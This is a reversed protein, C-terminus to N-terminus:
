EADSEAEEKRAVIGIADLLPKGADPTGELSELIKGMEDLKRMYDLKREGFYGDDGKKWGSFDESQPPVEELVVDYISQKIIERHGDGGRMAILVTEDQNLWKAEFLVDGNALRSVPNAHTLWSLWRSARLREKDDSKPSLIALYNLGSVLMWYNTFADEAMRKLTARTGGHLDMHQQIEQYLSVSIGTQKLYKPKKQRSM